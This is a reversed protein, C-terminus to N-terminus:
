SRKECLHMIVSTKRDDTEHKQDTKIGSFSGFVSPREEAELNSETENLLKVKDSM